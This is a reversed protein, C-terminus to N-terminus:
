AKWRWVRRDLADWCRVGVVCVAAGSLLAADYWVVSLYNAVKSEGLIQGGVPSGFTVGLGRM